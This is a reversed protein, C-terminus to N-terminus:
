DKTILALSPKKSTANTCRLRPLREIHSDCLLLILSAVENFYTARGLGSLIDLCARLRRKTEEIVSSSDGENWERLTYTHAVAKRWDPHVGVANPDM